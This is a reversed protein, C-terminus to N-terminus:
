KEISDAEDDIMGLSEDSESSSPAATFTINRGSNENNEQSKELLNIIYKIFNIYIGM